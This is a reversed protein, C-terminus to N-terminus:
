TQTHAANEATAANMSNEKENTSRSVRGLGISPREPRIDVALEPPVCAEDESVSKSHTCPARTADFVPVTNQRLMQACINRSHPAPKRMM